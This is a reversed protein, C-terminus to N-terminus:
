NARTPPRVGGERGAQRGAWATEFVDGAGRALDGRDLLRRAEEALLPGAATQVSSGLSPYSSLCATIIKPNCIAQASLKSYFGIQHSEIIILEASHPSRGIRSPLIQSKYPAPGLRSRSGLPSNGGRSPHGKFKAAWPNTSRSGTKACEARLDKDASM